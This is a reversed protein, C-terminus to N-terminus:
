TEKQGGTQGLKAQQTHIKQITKAEEMQAALDAEARKSSSRCITSSQDDHGQSFQSTMTETNTNGFVSGYDDKSLAMRVREKELQDNFSQEMDKIRKRVLDGVGTTLTHCADMKKVIEPTTTQNRRISEYHQCVKTHKFNVDKETEELDDPSCFTKLKATTEKVTGKWSEYAKYFAKENKKAELKHM